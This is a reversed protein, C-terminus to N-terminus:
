GADRGASSHLNLRLRNSLPAGTALYRDFLHLAEARDLRGWEPLCYGQDKLWLHFLAVQLTEIAIAGITSRRVRLVRARARELPISM